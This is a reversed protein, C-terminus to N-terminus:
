KTSHKLRSKMLIFDNVSKPTNMNEIYMYRHLAHGTFLRRLVDRCRETLLKPVYLERNIRDKTRARIAASRGSQNKNDILKPYSSQILEDARIDYGCDLLLVAMSGEYMLFYDEEMTQQLAYNRLDREIALALMSINKNNARDFVFYQEIIM